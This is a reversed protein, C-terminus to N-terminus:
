RLQLKDLSPTDLIDSDAESTSVSDDQYDGSSINENENIHDLEDKLPSGLTMIEMNMDEKLSKLPGFRHTNGASNQRPLPTLSKELCHRGTMITSLPTGGDTELTVESLRPLPGHLPTPQFSNERDHVQLLFNLPSSSHADSASALAPTPQGISYDDNEEQQSSTIYGHQSVLLSEIHLIHKAHLAHLCRLERSLDSLQMKHIKRQGNSPRQFKTELEADHDYGAGGEDDVDLLLDVLPVLSSEASSLRQHLGQLFISADVIHTKSTYKGANSHPNESDVRDLASRGTEIISQSISSCFSSVQSDLKSIKDLATNFESM